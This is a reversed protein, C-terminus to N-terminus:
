VKQDNRKRTSLSSRDRKKKTNAKKAAKREEKARRKDLQDLIREAMLRPRADIQEGTLSLGGQPRIMPDVHVAVEVKEVSLTLSAATGPCCLRLGSGEQDLTVQGYRAHGLVWLWVLFKQHSPKPCASFLRNLSALTHKMAAQDLMSLAEALQEQVDRTYRTRDPM